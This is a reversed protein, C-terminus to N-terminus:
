GLVVPLHDLARFVLRPNWVADGALELDPFRRVLTGIALAAERRALPAGLCFHAGAGFSVSERASNRTLDLADADDGFHTADRNASGLGLMVMEGPRVLEGGVVLDETPYRWTFQIASDFRNLEEVANDILSPDAQLRELQDRHRLLNLIGNGILGSTTEHGAVYLLTVQDLLEQHTLEGESEAALLISLLDDTPRERKWPLVDDVVFGCIARYAAVGEAFAGPAPAVSARTVAGAWEHIQDTAAEPMGLIDSIVQFPLRFALEPVLDIPEGTRRTGEELSDLIARVEREISDSLQQIKRRTFVKSMVRRVRTHEPPDLNLVGRPFLDSVGTREEGSPLNALSMTTGQHRLLEWVDDYAFCMVGLPSRHVPEGVRMAAYHSYPDDFFGPALPDFTTTSL